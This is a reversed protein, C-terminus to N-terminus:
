WFYVNLIIVALLSLLGYFEPTKFLPVNEVAAEKTLGKVLGVLEADPKRM